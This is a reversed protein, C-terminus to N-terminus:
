KNGFVLQQWRDVTPDSEVIPKKTGVNGGTPKSAFGRSEKLPAKSKNSFAESLIEYVNKVEKVSTAKDFSKVVRVKQTENLSKSKFIKNMYLLKANLLNIEQLKESLIKITKNAEHLKKSGADYGTRGKGGVKDDYGTTGKGGVKGYGPVQGKAEEVPEKEEEVKEGEEKELEALIEDLSLADGGDEDGEPAPLEEIGAEEGGEEPETVFPTLLDKLEGFKITVEMEDTEDELDPEMEGGKAEEGEGEEEEEDEDEDEEAENLSEFEQGEGEEMAELEALIADLDGESLDDKDMGEEAPGYEGEQMGGMEGDEWKGHVQAPEQTGDYCLYSEEPDRSSFSDQADHLVVVLDDIPTSTLKDFEGKLFNEDTGEPYYTASAGGKGAIRRILVYGAGPAQWNMNGDQDARVKIPTGEPNAEEEISSEEFSEDFEESLKMRLMEQIKPEFAEQLSAKANAIASARLAKADIIAQRYMENEM